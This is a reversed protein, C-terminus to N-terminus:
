KAVDGAAKWARGFAEKLRYPFGLRRILKVAWGSSVDDRRVLM